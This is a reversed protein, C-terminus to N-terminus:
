AFAVPPGPSRRSGQHNAPVAISGVPRQVSLLCRAGDSPCVVGTDGAIELLAHENM